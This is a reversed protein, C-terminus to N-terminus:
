ARSTVGFQRFLDAFFQRLMPEANRPNQLETAGFRFVEYGALKLEPDARTGKAYVAPDSRGGASYHTAGDVELVVRHGHPLLLLFDM